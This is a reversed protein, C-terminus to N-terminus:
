ERPLELFLRAVPGRSPAHSCARVERLALFRLQSLLERVQRLVAPSRHPAYPSPPTPASTCSVSQQVIHSFLFTAFATGVHLDSALMLQTLRDFM